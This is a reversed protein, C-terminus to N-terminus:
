YEDLELELSSLLAQYHIHFDKRDEPILVKVMSKNLLKGIVILNLALRFGIYKKMEDKASLLDSILSEAYETNRLLKMCLVDATEYDNISNIWELAKEKNFESLPYVCPALLQSERTTNNEWLAEAIVSNKGILTAIETIQPLNLGYIMKHNNGTKRLTDAIIGNRYSFFLKKIKQIEEKIEM